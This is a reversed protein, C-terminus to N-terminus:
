KLKGGLLRRMAMGVARYLARAPRNGHKIM